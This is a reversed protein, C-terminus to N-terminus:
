SVEVVDTYDNSVHYLISYPVHEISTSNGIVFVSGDEALDNTVLSYLEKMATKYDPVGVCKKSNQISNIIPTYRSIQSESSYFDTKLISGWASDFRISWQDRQDFFESLSNIFLNITVSERSPGSQVAYFPEQSQRHAPVFCRIENLEKDLVFRTGSTFDSEVRKQEEPQISQRDGAICYGTTAAYIRISTM